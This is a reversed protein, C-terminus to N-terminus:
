YDDNQLTKKLTDQWDQGLKTLTKSRVPIFKANAVLSVMNDCFSKGFINLVEKLLDRKPVGLTTPCWSDDRGPRRCFATETGLEVYVNIYSCEGICRGM